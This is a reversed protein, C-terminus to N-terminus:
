NRGDMLAPRCSKCTPSSRFAWPRSSQADSDAHRNPIAHWGAAARGVLAREMGAEAKVSREVIQQHGQSGARLDMDKRSLQTLVHLTHIVIEQRMGDRAQRHTRLEPKLHEVAEPQGESIQHQATRLHRVNITASGPDDIAVARCLERDARGIIDQLCVLGM